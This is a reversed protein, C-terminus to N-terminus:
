NNEGLMIFAHSGGANIHDLSEQIDELTVTSNFTILDNVADINMATFVGEPLNAIRSLFPSDSYIRSVFNVGNTTFPFDTYTRNTM